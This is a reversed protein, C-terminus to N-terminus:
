SEVRSSKNTTRRRRTPAASKVSLTEYTDEEEVLSSVFLSVYMFKKHDEYVTCVSLCERINRLNEQHFASRGGRSRKHCTDEEEYSM